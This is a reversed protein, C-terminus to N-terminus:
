GRRLYQLVFSDKGLWKVNVNLAFLAAIAIIFDWNSTHPAAVILIREENPISGIIQWGFSGLVIKGLWQFSGGWKGRLHEPVQNKSIKALKM